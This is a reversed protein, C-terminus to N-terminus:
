RTRRLVCLGAIGVVVLLLSSPEPVSAGFSEVGAEFMEEALGFNLFIGFPESEAIGDADSSLSLVLGYGGAPAGDSITFGPDVHFDGDDAAQGLLNAPNTFDALQVASSSSVVADPSGGFAAITVTTDGPSAVQSGDWYFLTDLVNFGVIDGPNIGAGEEVESAIGPEGSFNAFVGEGFEGEFVFGEAGEEIEIAGDVYSFEVDSHAEEEEQALSIASLSFLILTATILKKMHNIETKFTLFGRCM